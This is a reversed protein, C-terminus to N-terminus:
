QEQARAMWALSWPDEAQHMHLVYVALFDLVTLGTLARGLYKGKCREPIAEELIQSDM